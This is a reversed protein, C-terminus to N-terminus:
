LIPWTTQFIIIFYGIGLYSIIKFGILFLNKNENLENRNDVIRRYCFNISDILYGIINLPPILIPADFYELVLNYRQHKWIIDTNAQINLFSFSLHINNLFFIKIIYKRM